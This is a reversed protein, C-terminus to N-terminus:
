GRYDTTAANFLRHLREFFWDSLQHAPVRVAIESSGDRRTRAVRLALVRSLERAVEPRAKLIPALEDKTLEYTVVPVLADLRV